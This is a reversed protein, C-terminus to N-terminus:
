RGCALFTIYAMTGATDIAVAGHTIRRDLMNKRHNDSKKWLEIATKTQETSTLAVNEVCRSFGSKGFRDGFGSHDLEGRRAMDRSHQLALSYLKQSWHISKLGMRNRYRNVADFLDREAQRLNIERNEKKKLKVLAIRLRDKEQNLYIADYDGTIFKEINSLVASPNAKSIGKFSFVKMSSIGQRDPNQNVFVPISDAGHSQRISDIAHAYAQLDLSFAIFTLFM